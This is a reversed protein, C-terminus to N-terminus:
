VLQALPIASFQIVVSPRPDQRRCHVEMAMCRSCLYTRRHSLSSVLAHCTLLRTLTHLLSCTLACWICYTTDYLMYGCSLGIARLALTSPAAVLVRDNDSIPLSFMAGIALFPGAAVAYCANPLACHMLLTHAATSRM